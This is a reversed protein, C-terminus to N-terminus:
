PRDNLKRWYDGAFFFLGGGLVLLAFFMWCYQEEPYMNSAFLIALIFFLGIKEAPNM